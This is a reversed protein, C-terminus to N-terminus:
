AKVEGDSEENFINRSVWIVIALMFFAGPAMIMLNWSVWADGLINIGFLTGFGLLERFFAILLLVLAYGTGSAIGDIFSYVPPNNQAFSECRGM